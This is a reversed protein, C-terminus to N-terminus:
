RGSLGADRARHRPPVLGLRRDFECENAIHTYAYLSIDAITYRDAAFFRHATLHKEMVQLARYGNEAIGTRGQRPQALFASRRYLAGLQAARLVDM